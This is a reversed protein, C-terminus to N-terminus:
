SEAFSENLMRLDSRLDQIHGGRQLFEELISDKLDILQEEQKVEYIAMRFDGDDRAAEARERCSEAGHLCMELLLLLQNQNLRRALM